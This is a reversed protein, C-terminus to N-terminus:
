NRHQSSASPHWSKGFSQGIDTRDSPYAYFTYGVPLLVRQDVLVSVGDCGLREVLVNVSALKWPSNATCDEKGLSPHPFYTEIARCTQLVGHDALWREALPLDQGWDINSHLLHRYGNRPGGSAENFYALQHPYIRVTSAITGFLSAAILATALMRAYIQLPRRKLRPPIPALRHIFPPARRRAYRSGPTRRRM